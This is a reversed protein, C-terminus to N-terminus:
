NLDTTATTHVAAMWVRNRDADAFPHICSVPPRVPLIQKYLPGSQPPPDAPISLKHIASDVTIACVQLCVATARADTWVRTM